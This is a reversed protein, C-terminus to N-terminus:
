CSSFMWKRSALPPTLVDWGSLMFSARLRDAEEVGDSPEGALGRHASVQFQRYWHTCAAHLM